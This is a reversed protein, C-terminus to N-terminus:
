WTVMIVTSTYYGEKISRIIEAESMDFGLSTLFSDLEQMYIAENLTYVCYYNDARTDPLRLVTARNSISFVEIKFSRYGNSAASKMKDKINALQREIKHRLVVSESLQKLEEIFTM